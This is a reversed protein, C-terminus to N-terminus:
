VPELVGVITAFVDIQPPNQLHKKVACLSAARTVAARYEEPFGEPLQIEISMRDIMHTQPDTHWAQVLRIGETPINRQQCFALVYYGACTALSALFLEFPAPASNQGGAFAPQDSLIEFGRYSAAVKQGGPFSVLMIDM